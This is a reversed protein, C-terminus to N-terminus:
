CAIGTHMLFTKVYAYIDTNCLQSSRGQLKNCCSHLLANSHKSGRQTAATLGLLWVVTWFYEQKSNRSKEVVFSEFCGIIQKAEEQANKFGLINNNNRSIRLWLCPFDGGVDGEKQSKRMVDASALRPCPRCPRCGRRWGSLRGWLRWTIHDGQTLSPHLRMLTM